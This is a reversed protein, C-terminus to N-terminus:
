ARYCRARRVNKVWATTRAWWRRMAEGLLLFGVCISAGGRYWWCAGTPGGAGGGLRHWVMITTSSSLPLVSRTATRTAQACSAGPRAIELSGHGLNSLALSVRSYGGGADVRWGCGGRRHGEWDTVTVTTALWLRRRPTQAPQLRRGAGVAAGGRVLACGRGRLCGIRVPCRWIQAV